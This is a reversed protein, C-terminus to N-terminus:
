RGSPAETIKLPANNRTVPKLGRLVGRYDLWKYGGLTEWLKEGREALDIVLLVDSIIWEGRRVINFFEHCLGEQVLWRHISKGRYHNEYYVVGEPSLMKRLHERSWGLGRFFSIVITKPAADVCRLIFERYGSCHEIVGAALVLDLELSRFKRTDMKTWDDNILRNGPYLRHGERVAVENREVGIYDGEIWKSVWGTSGGIELANTPKLTKFLWEIYLWLGQHRRRMKAYFPQFEQVWFRKGERPGLGKRKSM